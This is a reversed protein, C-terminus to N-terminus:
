YKKVPVQTTKKKKEKQVFLWSSLSRAGAQNVSTAPRLAALTGPWFICLIRTKLFLSGPTASTGSKRLGAPNISCWLPKRQRQSIKKKREGQQSLPLISDSGEEANPKVDDGLKNAGGRLCCLAQSRAFVCTRRCAAPTRNIKKLRCRTHSQSTLSVLHKAKKHAHM